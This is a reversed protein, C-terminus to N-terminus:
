GLLSLYTEVDGQLNALETEKELLLQGKRSQLSLEDQLGEIQSTKHQLDEAMRKSDM